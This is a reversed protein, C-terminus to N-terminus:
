QAATGSELVGNRLAMVVAETRNKVGLKAFVASVYVSVTGARLGLERAIAKNTRGEALLVLVDRERGTLTAWPLGEHDVHTIMSVFESSITSRGAMVGRVADAVEEVGVTGSNLCASPGGALVVRVADDVAEALVVVRVDRRPVDGESEPSTSGVDLGVWDVVVVDLDLHLSLDCAEAATQATAVLTVDDLGDLSSVLGARVLPRSAVVM